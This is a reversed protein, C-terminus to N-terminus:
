LAIILAANRFTAMSLSSRRQLSLCENQHMCFPIFPCWPIMTTISSCSMGLFLVLILKTTTLSQQHPMQLVLLLYHKKVVFFSLRRMGNSHHFRATSSPLPYCHILMTAALHGHVGPVIKRRLLLAMM